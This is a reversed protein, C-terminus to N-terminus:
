YKGSLGRPKLILIIAMTIFVIFLSGEPFWVKTFVEVFGIILSGFFAGQLTGFGGVIVIVMAMMLMQSDLGPYAGIVPGGLAGALGALLSGLIFVKIFVVNINIGLASVMQKDEVGARVMIGFRTREIFWWLAFTIILGIMIIGLRYVPFPYGALAISGELIAPKELNKPYGGWFLKTFAMFVYGFGFTVLVQELHQGLLHRITTREIIFGALASGVAGAIIALFFNGTLLGVSFGVYGGLLYLSGHALNIVGMLGMILSLGVAVLFLLLSYFLANLSHIVLM